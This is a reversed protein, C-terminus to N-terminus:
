RGGEETPTRQIADVIAERPTKGWGVTRRGDDEVEWPKESEGYYTIDLRRETIYDLLRADGSAREPLSTLARIHREAEALYWALYEDKQTIRWPTAFHHLNGAFALAERVEPSPQAPQEYLAACLEDLAGWIPATISIHVAPYAGTEDPVPHKPMCALVRAAAVRLGTEPSPQPTPATLRRAVSLAESVWVVFPDAPGLDKWLEDHLDSGVEFWWRTLTAPHGDEGRQEEQHPVAPATTLERMAARVAEPKGHTLCLCECDTADHTPCYCRCTTERTESM